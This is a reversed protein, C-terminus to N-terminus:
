EDEEEEIFREGEDIDISINIEIPKDYKFANILQNRLPSEKDVIFSISIKDEIESIKEVAYIMADFSDKSKHEDLFDQAGELESEKM